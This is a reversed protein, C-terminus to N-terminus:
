RQKPADDLPRAAVPSRDDVDRTSCQGPTRHDIAKGVNCQFFRDRQERPESQGLCPQQRPM